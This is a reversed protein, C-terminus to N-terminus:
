NFTISKIFDPKGGCIFHRKWYPHNLSDIKVYKLKGPSHIFRDSGLYIGTHSIESQNMSFFVLNGKNLEERSLRICSAYQERASVPISANCLKYVRRTYGSCDLLYGARELENNELFFLATSEIAEPTLQNLKHKNQNYLAVSNRILLVLLVVGIISLLVKEFLGTNTRKPNLM